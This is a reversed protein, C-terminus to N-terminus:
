ISHLNQVAELVQPLSFCTDSPPVSESAVGASETSHIGILESLQSKNAEEM